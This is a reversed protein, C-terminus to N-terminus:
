SDAEVVLITVLEPDDSPLTDVVRLNPEDGMYITSGIPWDPPGLEMAGLVEGDTM